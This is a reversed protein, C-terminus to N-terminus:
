VENAPLLDMARAWDRSFAAAAEFTALHPAARPLWVFITQIAGNPGRLDHMMEFMTRAPHGDECDLLWTRIKEYQNFNDILGFQDGNDALYWAILQAMWEGEACGLLSDLPYIEGLESPTPYVGRNRNTVVKGHRILERLESKAEDINM